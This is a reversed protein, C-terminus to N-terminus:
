LLLWLLHEEQQGGQASIVDQTVDVAPLGEIAM